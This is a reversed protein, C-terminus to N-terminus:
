FKYLLIKNQETCHAFKRSLAINLNSNASVTSYAFSKSKHLTETSQKGNIMCMCLHCM